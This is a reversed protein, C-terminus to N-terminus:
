ADVDVEMTIRAKRLGRAAHQQASGASIGLLDGVEATTWGYGHVLLVATRQKETLRALAAPLGPEVWPPDHNPVEPFVVVTRRRRRAKSRGVRYLYGAANEM